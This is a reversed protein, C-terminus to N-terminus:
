ATQNKRSPQSKETLEPMELHQLKLLQARVENAQTQADM